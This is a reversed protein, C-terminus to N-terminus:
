SIFDRLDYIKDNCVPTVGQFNPNIYVSEQLMICLIPKFM